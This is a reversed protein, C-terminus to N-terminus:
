ARNEKEPEIIEPRIGKKIAVLDRATKKPETTKEPNEPRDATLQTYDPKIYENLSLSSVKNFGRDLLELNVSLLHSQEFAYTVVYHRYGSDPDLVGAVIKKYDEGLVDDEFQEMPMMTMQVYEGQLDGNEVALISQLFHPCTRNKKKPIAMLNQQTTIKYTIRNKLDVLMRGDWSYRKFSILIIDDSVVLTRLNDNIKDGRLYRISNMTEMHNEHCFDPVDEEIAKQIARVIRRIVIEESPFVAACKYKTLVM